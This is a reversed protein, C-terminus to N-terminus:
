NNKPVSITTLYFPEEEARDFYTIPYVTDVGNQLDATIRVETVNEDTISGALSDAYKFLERKLNGETNIDAQLINEWERVIGLVEESYPSSSPISGATIILNEILTKRIKDREEDPAVPDIISVYLSVERKCGHFRKAFEEEDCMYSDSWIHVRMDEHENNAYLNSYNFWPSLEQGLVELLENLKERKIAVNVGDNIVDAFQGSEAVRLTDGIAYYSIDISDCLRKFEELVECEAALTIRDDESLSKIGEETLKSESSELSPLAPESEKKMFDIYYRSSISQIYDFAEEYSDYNQEEYIANVLAKYFPYDHGAAVNRPTMYSDSYKTRLIDNYGIPAPITTNEFPIRITSRYVDKPIYYNGGSALCQMETVFDADEDGYLGAIEEHLIVIEQYDPYETSFQMGCNKELWKVADKYETFQEGYGADMPENRDLWERANAAIACKRIAEIQEEELAKERPVYDLNFIDLGVPFPFGCYEKYVKREVTYLTSNMVRYAHFGHDAANYCNQILIGEYNDVVQCFKQLDKRFMCLDLDDDWPIYGQHRVAGLLTGWNAFYNIDNEECIKDVFSLMELQAAWAHKMFAPITFGCRTEEKFYNVDFELM